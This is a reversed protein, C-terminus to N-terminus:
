ADSTNKSRLTEHYFELYSKVEVGKDLAYEIMGRTISMDPDERISSWDHQAYGWALNHEAIYDLNEKVAALYGARNDWGIEGRMICDQWGQIPCELIDGFGQPEYWYPQIDLSLPQWDHENRAYTRIFRIGLEHIIELIDPRDSLGRYYGYPGTLGICNIDLHEKLLESAREVQERIQGLTGGRFVTKGHENEQFVTKLLVHSYTHQQFDFLDGYEAKVAQFAEINNELTRGCIFFTCPANLERHLPAAVKLFQATAVSNPDQTEVDYGILFTAM